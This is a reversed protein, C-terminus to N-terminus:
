IWFGLVQVWVYAFAFVLGPGSVLGLALWVLGWRIPRAAPDPIPAVLAAISGVIVAVCLAMRCFISAPHM